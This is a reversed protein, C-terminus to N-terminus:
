IEHIAKQKDVKKMRPRPNRVEWVARHANPHREHHHAWAAEWEAVRQEYAAKHAAATTPMARQHPIGKDRAM